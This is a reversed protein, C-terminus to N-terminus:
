RTFGNWHSFTQAGLGEVARQAEENLDGFVEYRSIEAYNFFEALSEGINEFHDVIADADEFWEVLYLKSQDENIYWHFAMMKPENAQVAETADVAMKKATDLSGEKIIWEVIYQVQNNMIKYGKSSVGAPEEVPPETLETTLTELVETKPM